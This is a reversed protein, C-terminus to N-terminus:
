SKLNLFSTLFLTNLATKPTVLAANRKRTIKIDQVDITIHQNATLLHHNKLLEDFIAFLREM